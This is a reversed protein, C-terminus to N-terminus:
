NTKRSTPTSTFCSEEHVNASRPSSEKLLTNAGSGSSSNKKPQSDDPAGKSAPKSSNAKSSSNIQLRPIIPLGGSSNKKLQYKDAAPAAVM